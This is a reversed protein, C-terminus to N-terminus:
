GGEGGREPADAMPGSFGASVIREEAKELYHRKWCTIDQKPDYHVANRKDNKCNLCKPWDCLGLEYPCCEDAQSECALDLAVEYILPKKAM